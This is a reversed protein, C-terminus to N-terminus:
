LVREIVDAIEAFSMEASDNLAVVSTGFTEAAQGPGVYISDDYVIDDEYRLGAWRAVKPSLGFAYNDDTEQYVRDSAGSIETRGWAVVGERVALDTLVGAACYCDKDDERTKLYGHTQTYEGSRLADLLATKVEPRLKQIEYTTM